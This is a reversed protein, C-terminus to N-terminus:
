AVPHGFQEILSQSFYLLRRGILVRCRVCQEVVDLVHPIGSQCVGLM